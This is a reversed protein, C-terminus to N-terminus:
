KQRIKKKLQLYDEPIICTVKQIDAYILTSPISYDLACFYPIDKWDM